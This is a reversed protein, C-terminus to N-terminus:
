HVEGVVATDPTPGTIHRTTLRRGYVSDYPNRFPYEFNSCFIRITGAPITVTSHKISITSGENVDTIDRSVSEDYTLFSIDDILLAKHTHHNWKKLGDLRGSVYFPEAGSAWRLVYKAFQTKGLGASGWLLLAHEKPKWTEIQDMWEKPWPGCFTRAIPIPCAGFRLFNQVLQAGRQLMMAPILRKAEGTFEDLTELGLLYSYDGGAVLERHTCNFYIPDSDIEKTSSPVILYTFINNHGMGLNPHIGKYDWVRAADRIHTKKKLKFACHIHRGGDSHKEEAIVMKDIPMNGGSTLMFEKLGEKTFDNGIQAWTLLGAKRNFDFKPLELPVLPARGLRGQPVTEDNEVRTPASTGTARNSIRGGDTGFIFQTESIHMLDAAGRSDITKSRTVPSSFESLLQQQTVEQAEHEPTPSRTPSRRALPSSAVDALKSLPSSTVNGRIGPDTAESDESEETTYQIFDGSLREGTQETEDDSHDEGSKEAEGEFLHRCAARRTQKRQKSQVRARRVLSPPSSINQPM